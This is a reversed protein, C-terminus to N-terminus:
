ICFLGRDYHCGRGLGENIDDVRVMGIGGVKELFLRADVENEWGVWFDFILM